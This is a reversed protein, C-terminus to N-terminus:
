TLPSMTLFRAGCFGNEYGQINLDRGDVVLTAGESVGADIYGRVKNAHDRTVLPGMEAEPDTGPGVKLARVKPALREIL